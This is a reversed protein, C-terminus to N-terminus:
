ITELVVEIGSATILDLLAIAVAAEDWIYLPYRDTGNFSTGPMAQASPVATYDLLVNAPLPTTPVTITKGVNTAQLIHGTGVTNFSYNAMLRWQVDTDTSFAAGTLRVEYASVWESVVYSGNNGAASNLIVVVHGVVWAAFMPEDVAITDGGTALTADYRFDWGVQVVQPTIIALIKWFHDELKGAGGELRIALGLWTVDFVAPFTAIYSPDTVTPLGVFASMSQEAYNVGARFPDASDWVGYIVVPVKGAVVTSPTASAKAEAGVLYSKGRSQTGPTAAIEVHVRHLDGVMDEWIEYNGAGFLVDLIKECAYVTQADLYILVRLLLRFTADTVGLPRLIGFVHALMTLQEGVAYAPLFSDKLTSLTDDRRGDSTGVAGPGLDPGWILLVPSSNDVDVPLGANGDEDVVNQLRTPNKGDYYGTVGGVAIRGRDPWRHLGEVNLAGGGATYAVSTRTELGGYVEAFTDALATTVAVLLEVETGM